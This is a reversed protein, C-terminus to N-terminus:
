KMGTILEADQELVGDAEHEEGLTIGLQVFVSLLIITGHIEIKVTKPLLLSSSLYASFHTEFFFSCFSKAYGSSLVCSSTWLLRTLLFM